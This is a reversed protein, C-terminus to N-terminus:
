GSSKLHRHLTSMNIGDTNLLTSVERQRTALHFYYCVVNSLEVMMRQGIQSYTVVSRMIILYMKM